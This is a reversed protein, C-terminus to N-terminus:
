PSIRITRLVDKLDICPALCVSILTGISASFVGYVQADRLILVVGAVVCAIGLIITVIGGIFVVNRKRSIQKVEEEWYKGNRVVNEQLQRLYLLRAQDDNTSHTPEPSETPREEVVGEQKGSKRAGKDGREKAPLHEPNTM